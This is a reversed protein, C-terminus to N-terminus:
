IVEAEAAACLPRLGALSDWAFVKVLSAGQATMDARGDKMVAGTIYGGGADYAAAFLTAGNPIDAPEVSVALRDKNVMVNLGTLSPGSFHFTTKSLVANGTDIFINGWEAKSGEYYVDKLASCILFARKGIGVLTKPIKLSTVTSNAYFAEAAIVRTGPLLAYEGVVKKGNILCPGIYLAGDVYNSNNKYFATGSFAAKDIERVGECGEIDALKKCGNFASAGITVVGSPITIAALSICDQFASEGISVVGDPITVSRLNTCGSFAGMGIEEIAEPMYVSRLLACNMFAGEGLSTLETADSIYAYVLSSCKKFAGDGIIKVSSPFYIETLEGCGAFAGAAVSVTGSIVDYDGSVETRSPNGDDASILHVGIYLVGKRWNGSRNYYSTNDFAGVGINMANKPLTIMNLSTCGAFAKDGINTVGNPVTVNKLSTCSQFAKEKISAVPKGDIEGPIELRTDDGEYKTIEVYSDQRVSYVIGDSTTAARGVAPLAALMFVTCLIKTLKNM